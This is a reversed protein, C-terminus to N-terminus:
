APGARLTRARARVAGRTPRSTSAFQRTSRTTRRSRGYARGAHHDHRGRVRRGHHDFGQHPQLALQDRRAEFRFDEVAGVRRPARGAIRARAEFLQRGPAPGVRDDGDDAIERGIGDLDPHDVLHRALRDYAPHGEFGRGRARGLRKRDSGDLQQARAKELDIQRRLTPLIPPVPGDGRRRGGDDLEHLRLPQRSVRLPEADLDAAGTDHAQVADTGASSGRTRKSQDTREQNRV